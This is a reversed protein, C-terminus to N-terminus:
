ACIASASPTPRLETLRARDFGSYGNGDTVTFRQVSVGDAGSYGALAEVGTVSLLHSDCSGKFAYAM